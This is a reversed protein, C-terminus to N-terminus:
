GKEALVAKIKARMQEPYPNGLSIIKGDLLYTPVAFVEEPKEAGPEDLNIIETILQPFQRAIEAMLLVAEQCSHCEAAIYVRLRHQLGGTLSDSSDSQHRSSSNM